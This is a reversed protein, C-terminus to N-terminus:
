NNTSVTFLARAMLFEVVCFYVISIQEKEAPGLVGFTTSFVSRARISSQEVVKKNIFHSKPCSKRDAIVKRHNWTIIVPMEFWKFHSHVSDPAITVDPIDLIEIFKFHMCILLGAAIGHDWNWM